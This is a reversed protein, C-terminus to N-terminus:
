VIREISSLKIGKTCSGNYLANAARCLDCKCGRSYSRKSGHPVPLSYQDNGTTVGKKALYIKKWDSYAKRCLECRCKYRTYQSTTGHCLSRDKKFRLSNEQNTKKKHCEHCLLQCKDIEAQLLAKNAMGWSHALDLLKDEPNIHDFELKETSGCKACKGGLYEITESRWVRFFEITTKL